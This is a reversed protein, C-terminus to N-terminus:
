KGILYLIRKRIDSLAFANIILCVLGIGSILAFNIYRNEINLQIIQKCSFVIIVTILLPFLLGNTYWKLSENNLLKKHIFIPTIFMFILNTIAWASAGGVAGYNLALYITLPSMILILLINQYLGFKTWGFALSLQYPINLLANFGTGISLISVIISAKKSVVVDKTLILLLEESFFFLIVSSPIVLIGLIQYALRYTSRLENKNKLALLSVFKPFFSQNIPNVFQYLMVAITSALSYYGFKDLPLVKSLIIRDIQTLIIATISIGTIGVAFKWVSLLERKDFVASVDSKPLCKWLIIKFVLAQIITIILNWLFFSIVDNSVFLLILVSGVSKVLAFFVRLINLTLQKHLGILGGSYFGIPFYFILSSSLLIFAKLITDESLTVPQVWYKAILPSLGSAILGITVALGWYITGLTKVLNRVRNVSSTLDNVKALERTLASSLGGDLVSLVAQLSSFIGILGYGEPGLYKLYIPVFIISLIAISLNSFYNSVLNVKLSEIKNLKSFLKKNLKLVSIFFYFLM